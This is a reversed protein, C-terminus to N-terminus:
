VALFVRCQSADRSTGNNISIRAKDLRPNSKEATPWWGGKSVRERCSVLLLSSLSERLPWFLGEEGGAWM